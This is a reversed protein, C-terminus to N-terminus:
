PIVTGGVGSGSLAIRAVGGGVRELWGPLVAHDVVGELLALVLASEPRLRRGLAWVRRPRQATVGVARLSPQVGSEGAKQGAGVGRDAPADLREIRQEAFM